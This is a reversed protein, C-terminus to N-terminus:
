AARRTRAVAAGVGYVMVAMAVSVLTAPLPTTAGGLPFPLRLVTAFIFEMGDRWPDFDTPNIWGYALAGAIWGAWAFARPATGLIERAVVLAMLPLFISGLVALADELALGDTAFGVAIAIAGAAVLAPKFWRYGFRGGALSAAHLNAAAADAELAVVILVGAAGIPLATIFSAVDAASVTFVWLTGVIAYWATMAGAGAGVGAAAARPTRADMAYDAVVPVWLLPVAAILDFGQARTPWGGLGNADHLIPIGYTTVGTATILLVMVLGVWFAFWAMWRGVFVHTPLLALALALAGLALAWLWREGGLAPVQAAAESAFAVTFVAWCAHRVFLLVALAPAARMGLVSSVLGVTNQRRKAAIAAVTALMGAGALSGAISVLIADRLTLAPVLYAGPLFALLSMCLGGWLMALSWGSYTRPPALEMSTDFPLGSERARVAM